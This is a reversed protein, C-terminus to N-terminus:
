RGQEFTMKNTDVYCLKNSSKTWVNVSVELDKLHSFLGAKWVTRSPLKSCIATGCNSCFLRELNNGSDAKMKYIAPKGKIIRINEDSIVINFSPGGGSVKQCDECYCAVVNKPLDNCEIEINGCLCKGIELSM